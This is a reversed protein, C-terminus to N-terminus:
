SQFTVDTAGYGFEHTPADKIEKVHENNKLLKLIENKLKLNGVGHIFTIKKMGAALADELNKEFYKIQVAFTEQKTLQTYNNHLKDIHLDIIQLPAKFDSIVEQRSETSMEFNSIKKIDAENLGGNIIFLYGQKNLIPTARLHKFFKNAPIQLQKVVPSTVIVDPQTIVQFNFSEWSTFKALELKDISKYDYPEITQFFRSTIQSNHLTFYNVFVRFKTHNVFYLELQQENIQVFSAYMNEDFGKDAIRVEVPTIKAETKLYDEFAIKVVQNVLVPIEFDDVTVGLNNSDIIASVIGNMNENVFRVKDGISFKMKCLYM